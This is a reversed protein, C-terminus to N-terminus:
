HAFGLAFAHFGKFCIFTLVQELKEIIWHDGNLPLLNFVEIDAIAYSQYNLRFKIKM